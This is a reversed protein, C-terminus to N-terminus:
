RVFFKGMTDEITSFELDEALSAYELTTYRQQEYFGVNNESKM